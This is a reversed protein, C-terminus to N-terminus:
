DPFAPVNPITASVIDQSENRIQAALAPNKSEVAEADELREKAVQAACAPKDFSVTCEIGQGAKRLGYLTSDPTVDKNHAIAVSTGVVSGSAAIAIIIAIILPAIGKRETRNRMNDRRM